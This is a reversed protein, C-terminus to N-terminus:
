SVGVHLVQNKQGFYKEDVELIETKRNEITELRKSNIVLKALRSTESNGGVDADAVNSFPSRSEFTMKGFCCTAIFMRKSRSAFKTLIVDTLSGCAHLGIVVDFKQQLIPHIDDLAFLDVSFTHLNKLGLQDARYKAQQLACTNRDVITITWSPFMWALMVSLDGRGGCIDLISISQNESVVGDTILGILIEIQSRKRRCHKIRNAVGKWDRRKAALYTGMSMCDPVLYKPLKSWEIYTRKTYKVPSMVPHLKLSDEIRSSNFEKRRQVIEHNIREIQLLFKERNQILAFLIDMDQMNSINLRRQLDEIDLSGSEVYKRMKTYVIAGNLKRFNNRPVEM